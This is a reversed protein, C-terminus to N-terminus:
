LIDANKALHKTVLMVACKVALQCERKLAPAPPGMGALRDAEYASSDRVMIPLSAREASTGTSLFAVPLLHVSSHLLCDGTSIGAPLLREVSSPVVCRYTSLILALPVFRVRSGEGPIGRVAKIRRTDCCRVCYAPSMSTMFFFRSIHEFTFQLRFFVM